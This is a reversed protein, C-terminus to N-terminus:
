KPLVAAPDSAHLPDTSATAAMHAASKSKASRSRSRRTRHERVATPHAACVAALSGKHVDRRSEGVRQQNAKSVAVVFVSAASTHCDLSPVHCSAAARRRDTPDPRRVLPPLWAQSRTSTVGFRALRPPHSGLFSSRFESRPVPSAFTRSHRAHRTGDRGPGPTGTGPGPLSPRWAFPCEVRPGGGREARLRARRSTQSKMILYTKM